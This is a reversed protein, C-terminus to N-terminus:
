VPRHLRNFTSTGPKLEVTTLDFLRRDLIFNKERGTQNKQVMWKPVIQDDM